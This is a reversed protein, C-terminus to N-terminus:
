QSKIHNQSSSQKSVNNSGEEKQQQQGEEYYNSQIKDPKMDNYSLNHSGGRKIEQLKDKLKKNNLEMDLRQIIKNPAKFM